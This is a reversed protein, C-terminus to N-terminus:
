EHDLDYGAAKWAEIGGKMSILHSFGASRLSTIARDTRGGPVNASCHVIYTTAPNLAAARQLFDEANVDVHVSDAIHGGAYEPATRVDLIRAGRQLEAAVAGIEITPIEAAAQQCQVAYSGFSIALAAIPRIVFEQMTLSGKM